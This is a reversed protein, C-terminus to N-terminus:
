RTLGGLLAKAEKLDATDFGETFRGYIEALMTVSQERHGQKELLRALSTTARLEPSKANMKRALEIAERFDREALEFRTAGDADRLFRLQGRLHLTLPRHWLEAPNCALALAVTAIADDIAGALAQTEALLCLLFERLVDLKTSELEALGARLSDLVGGTQGLHARAWSGGIKAGGSFVPFSSETGLREVEQCAAYAGAFDGCLGRTFVGIGLAFVSAFPNNLRRALTRADDTYRLAQDPYGLLWENLGAWVLADCGGYLDDPLANLQVKQYHDIAQLYYQRAAALNGLFFYTNGKTYHATALVRASGIGRAMELMQDALVLAPRLEGRTLEGVWLGTLVQVSEATGSLEAITRARAYVATTEVASWGRTEVMARGLALQLALEHANRESSEPLTALMALANRYHQEAEILAGRVESKQGAKEWYGIAKEVLRAESCHHALLHPQTEVIEGFQEELVAAIRGHLQQRPGRLLTSYAADQVLAHKFTYVADPPSGRRFVLESSVLQDLAQELEKESRPWVASILDHSFERGLAAGVEAIERTTGLRDLRAMLSAHLTTPVDLRPFTATLLNERDTHRLLASELVTKTLEEIFLPVGDTRSLIQEVVEAPLTKGGAVADIIVSGESRTLRRLLQTTVHPRGSWPAAFEPRYTVILLVALSPVREVALDLLERSTPDSWHADEFIMLVPRQASLAALHAILMELIKQRRKQPSLNRAPYREGAPLSLLHALLAADQPPDESSHALLEELKALKREPGDGDAFGAARELQSIIPHFASDQHRPSCFYLLRFHPEAALEQQLARILRSKGIGAEGTLLVVQGERNKARRWRRLMLELEEERGVLETLGPVHLAEFRSPIESPRIVQWTQMSTSFGKLTIAGLDRYEFLAGVLRYTSDAIVITDPEAMAQLRAAINPTEGLATQKQAVGSRIEDGVVVLGTAIGIRSRLAIEPRPRIASVATLLELGARVAREAEDEYAQPYGFYVLVGDGMYQAVFGGFRAVVRACCDHYADIVDRYDELDLRTSLATSDVLDCFM